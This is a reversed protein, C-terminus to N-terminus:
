LAAANILVEGMNAALDAPLEAGYTIYDLEKKSDARRAWTLLHNCYTTHYLKHTTAAQAIKLIDAAPFLRCLQGDAHYPYGAAGQEVAAAAATLNIQDTERLSFHGTSGDSLTVDCGAVIAANCEASIEALKKTRVDEIGAQDSHEREWAAIEEATAGEIWAKGNWKPRVFGPSNLSFKRTPQRCEDTVPVLSEDEALTYQQIQEVMGGDQWEFTLRIFADSEENKLILKDSERTLPGVLRFVTEHEPDIILLAASGGDVSPAYCLVRGDETKGLYPCNSVARCADLQSLEADPLTASVVEWKAPSMDAAGIEGLDLVLKGPTPVNLALVLDVYFRNADIVCYYKDNKMARIVREYMDNPIFLTHKSLM